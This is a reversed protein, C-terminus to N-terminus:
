QISMLSLNTLETKIGAQMPLTLPVPTDKPLAFKLILVGPAPMAGMGMNVLLPFDLYWYGWKSKLPPDLVGSGLWFYVSSKPLGLFKVQVTGGPAANGTWYLHTYFEDAGIDVTGDAIRPDGEFDYLENVATNDGMDKCPSPYRLHYDGHTPGTPQDVFLADKDINGKGPWGGKVNCYTVTPSTGDVSIDPDFAAVNDRVITNTITASSGSCWIGAGKKQSLNNCITNNTITAISSMVTIGGGGYAANDYIINNAIMPKSDNGVYIGGGTIPYDIEGNGRIINSTIAPFSADLFIGPGLEAKNDQIINNAITPSSAWCCIGGGFDATNETITNNTIIPESSYRLCIGGGYGIDALNGSITNNTITPSSSHCYIGGGKTATNGTITNNTITPSSSHCYIGAGYGIDASNGFMTNDTITPSSSKSCFIGAGNYKVSNGSITNNTINPSSSECHIGGGYNSKGNTVTFGELVTTLVEGSNFKVTSDLQGGDIVTTESGASSIVIIDKGLFDINEVYTGPAVLVTDGPVAADIGAQITPQDGPVHITAPFAALTFVLFFSFAFLVCRM